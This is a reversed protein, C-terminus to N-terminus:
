ARIRVSFDGTVPDLLSTFVTTPNLVPYTSLAEYLTTFNMGAPTQAEIYSIATQARNNDTAPPSLWHDFNTQVLWWQSENLHWIDASNLRDRTVVSGSHPGAMTDYSAAAIHDTSLLELADKYSHATELAKRIELLVGKYGLSLAVYNYENHGDNRQNQSISFVGPKVGTGVGLYWVFQATKFLIKNDKYWHLEIVTKRLSDGYDYDLNRGHLIYGSANRVVISTCHQNYEYMFNLFIAEAYSIDCVDAMSQVEKRLEADVFTENLFVSIARLEDPSVISAYSKAFEHISSAYAKHVSNWRTTPPDDLSINFVPAPYNAAVFPLLLLFAAM